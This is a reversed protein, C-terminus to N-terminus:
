LLSAAEFAAPLTSFPGDPSDGWLRLATEVVRPSLDAPLAAVECPGRESLWRAVPAPVDLALPADYIRFAACVLEFPWDAGEFGEWTRHRIGVLAREPSSLLAALEADLVGRVELVAEDVLPSAPLRLPRAPVPLSSSHASRWATCIRDLDLSLEFQRDYLEALRAGLHPRSPPPLRKSGAVLETAARLLALRQLLPRDARWRALLNVGSSRLAAARPPLAHRATTRLALDLAHFDLPGPEPLAVLQELLRLTTATGWDPFLSSLSWDCGPCLEVVRSLPLSLTTAPGVGSPCRPDAHLVGSRESLSVVVGALDSGLGLRQASALVEPVQSM